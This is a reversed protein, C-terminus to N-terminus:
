GRQAAKGANIQATRCRGVLGSDQIKAVQKLLVVKAARHQLRHVQMQLRLPNADRGTRDHIRGNNMRRRRGLVGLLLAIRRHMLGLLAVLPVEPQLRMDAHIRLLARYMRHRRRRGVHRVHVHQGIQQMALLAFHPAIAAVLALGLRDLLGRWLGLVHGALSRLELVMDIFNCLLLVRRFGSYSRFYLMDEADQLADEAEVLHPISADGLVVMPQARVEGQDVEVQM